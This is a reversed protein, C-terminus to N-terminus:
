LVRERRTNGDAPAGKSIREALKTGELLGIFPERYYKRVERSKRAAVLLRCGNSGVGILGIGHEELTAKSVNEATSFPVAIYVYDSCLQYVLAQELARKWNTLKLEVAITSRAVQSYGYIDIRYEFFPMEGRQLTFGKRRVFSCVPVFLDQEKTQIMPKAFMWLSM